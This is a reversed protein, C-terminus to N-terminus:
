RAAAGGCRAAGIGLRGQKLGGGAQAPLGNAHGGSRRDHAAEGADEVEEKQREVMDGLLGSSDDGEVDALEKM